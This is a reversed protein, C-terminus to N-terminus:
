TNDGDRYKIKSKDFLPPTTKKEWPLPIYKGARREEVIHCSIYTCLFMLGIFLWGFVMFIFELMM